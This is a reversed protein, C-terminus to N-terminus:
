GKHGKSFAKPGAIAGLVAGIVMGPIGFLKGGLIAAAAATGATFAELAIEHGIGEVGFDDEPPLAGISYGWPQEMPTLRSTYIREDSPAYPDLGPYYDEIM